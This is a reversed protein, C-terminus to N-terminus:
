KKSIKKFVKNKRYVEKWYRDLDELYEEKCPFVTILKRTASSFVFIYGQYYKKKRGYMASMYNKLKSGEQTKHLTPYLISIQTWVLGKRHAIKSLTVFRQKEEETREKFRQEAHYSLKVKPKAM